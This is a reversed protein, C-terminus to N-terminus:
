VPAVIVSRRLQLTSPDTHQPADDPFTRALFLDDLVFLNCDFIAGCDLKTM